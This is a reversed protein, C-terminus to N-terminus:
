VITVSRKIGSMPEAKVRSPINYTVMFISLCSAKIAKTIEGM